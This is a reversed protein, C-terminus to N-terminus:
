MRRHRRLWYISLCAAALGSISLVAGLRRRARQQDVAQLAREQAALAQAQRNAALQASWDPILSRDPLNYCQHWLQRYAQLEAEWRADDWGLEPQCIRRIDPLIAEGGGPLLLGLRLRRLLLDDLHVVQEQCAWRLEAWLYPTGPILELEGSRAAAVLAPAHSSYRGLLRRRTKEPIAEGHPLSLDIPKLVPVDGRLKEVVEPLRLARLADQAIIHFTTLKGGTVTLLGAEQWVVHDRSEKSPDLKGTGIVPRVGSFTAIVDDLTIGLSPFRSEVAAMLYAVEQPSIGPEDQM